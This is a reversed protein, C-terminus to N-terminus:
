CCIYSSDFTYKFEPPNMFISVLIHLLGRGVGRPLTWEREWKSSLDISRWLKCAMPPDNGVCEGRGITGGRANFEVVRKEVQPGQIEV